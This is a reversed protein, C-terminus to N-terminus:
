IKDGKMFLSLMITSIESNIIAYAIYILIIKKCIYNEKMETTSQRAGGDTRFEAKLTRTLTVHIKIAM